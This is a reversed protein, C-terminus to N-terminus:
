ATVPEYGAGRVPSGGQRGGAVQQLAAKASALRKEFHTKFSLRSDLWFGLWKTAGSNIPFEQERIHVGAERAAYLAKRQKSFLIVEIKSVEFDVKNETGWEIAHQAVEKLDRIGEELNDCYVVLCINDVFSIAQM